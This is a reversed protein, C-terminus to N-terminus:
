ARIRLKLLGTALLSRAKKSRGPNPAGHGTARDPDPGPDPNPQLGPDPCRRILPRWSRPGPQDQPMHRPRHVGRRSPVALRQPLRPRLRGHPLRLPRPLRHHVRDPLLSPRRLGQLDHLRSLNRQLTTHVHRRRLRDGPQALLPQKRMPPVRHLDWRAAGWDAHISHVRRKRDFLNEGRRLRIRTPLGALLRERQCV